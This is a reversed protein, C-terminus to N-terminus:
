NRKNKQKKIIVCCNGEKDLHNKLYCGNIEIDMKKTLVSDFKIEGNNIKYYESPNYYASDKSDYYETLGFGGFELKGDHDIDTFPPPGIGQSKDNYVCEVLKIAKQKTLQFVILENYNPADDLELFLLTKSNQEIIRNYKSTYVIGEIKSSILTKNYHILGDKIVISDGSKTKLVIIEDQIRVILLFLILFSPTKM